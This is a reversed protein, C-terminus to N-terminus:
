LAFGCPLAFLRQSCCPLRLVVALVVWCHGYNMVAQGRSSLLPDHHMGAGYMRRGHKRALTDDLALHVVEGLWPVVLDLITFGLEQLSWHATSFFRHYASFHKRDVAGAALILGTVNRREAFVWGCVITQFNAFTPATMLPAFPQLLQAFSTVLEM